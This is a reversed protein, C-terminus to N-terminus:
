DKQALSAKEADLALRVMEDSVLCTDWVVVGGGVEDSWYRHGGVVAHLECIGRFVPKAEMPADDILRNLRRLERKANLYEQETM